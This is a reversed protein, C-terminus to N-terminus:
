DRYENLFRRAEAISVGFNGALCAPTNFPYGAAAYRKMADIKAPTLVGGDLRDIEDFDGLMDDAGSIWGPRPKRIEEEM